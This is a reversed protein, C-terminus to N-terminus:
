YIIGGLKEYLKMTEEDLIKYYHKERFLELKELLYTSYIFDTDKESDVLARMVVVWEFQPFTKLLDDLNKRDMPDKSSELMEKFPEIFSWELLVKTEQTASKKPHIKHLFGIINDISLNNIEKVIRQVIEHAGDRDTDKM